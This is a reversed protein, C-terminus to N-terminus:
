NDGQKIVLILKERNVQLIYNGEVLSSLDLSIQDGPKVVGMKWELILNGVIDSVSVYLEDGTYDISELYVFEHTPNPYLKFSRLESNSLEVASSQNVTVFITDSGSCGEWSMVQVFYSHKGPDLNQLLITQDTSGTSWMYSAFGSGADLMLEDNTTISTDKGLDVQPLPNVLLKTEITSDCADITSLTETFVGAEKRYAGAIWVSDGQCITHDLYTVEHPHVSLNYAIVSDCRYINKYSDLYVGTEKRYAGALMISDGECISCAHEYYHEPNTYLRTTVISDCSYASYLTDIYIGPEKRYLNGILLSDGECIAYKADVAYKPMVGVQTLVISDCGYVSALTDAYVGASKRYAGAIWMSDGDCLTAYLNTTQPEHVSLGYAYISDCGYANLFRDYYVGSEKRFAGALFLSDGTCIHYHQYYSHSPNVDLTHILISDCSSNTTLSDYYTGAVKQYVGGLMISDGLCIVHQQSIEYSPHVTLETHVLSDCGYSNLLSDTFTGAQKQFAGALWVSDGECIEATLYTPQSPAKVNLIVTDPKSTIGNVEQTVYYTYTGPHMIEPRLYAGTGIPVEPDYLCRVSFSRDDYTHGKIIEGGSNEIVYAFYYGVTLRSASWFKAWEGLKHYDGYGGRKGAPLATFGSENSALINPFIWHEVGTEKMLGGAHYQGGLYDILQNWEVDEPLKWGTPCSEEATWWNYLRGYVNAHTLSDDNYYWSGDPTYYNLNQAMWAQDGIVVSKYYQQDRMDTFGEFYNKFDAYWTINEGEAHLMPEEGFCIESDSAKPPPPEFKLNVIHVSDCGLNSYITDYYVGATKRYKGGLLISDGFYLSQKKHVSYSCRNLLNQCSNPFYLDELDMEIMFPNNALRQKDVDNFFADPYKTYGYMMLDHDWCRPNEPPCKDPHWLNLAHGLEHGMGGVYRCPPYSHVLDPCYKNIEKGVLGLLDNAGIVVVGRGGCGGCQGCAPNADIYFLWRNNQDSYRGGTHKFGDQLVNNWFTQFHSGNPNTSYWSAPHETKYVQVIPDHLAFTKGMGLAEYYWVQLHRIANELAVIYEPKVTSDSPILYVVRVEKNAAEASFLEQQLLPPSEKATIMDNENEQANGLLFGLVVIIAILFGWRIDHMATALADMAKM